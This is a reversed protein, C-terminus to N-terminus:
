FPHYKRQRFRSYNGIFNFMPKLIQAFFILVLIKIKDNSNIEVDIGGYKLKQLNTQMISHMLKKQFETAQDEWKGTIKRDFPKMVNEKWKMEWLPILNPKEEPIALMNPEFDIQLFHCVSKLSQGPNQVLTEFKIDFFNEKSFMSKAKLYLDVYENWEMSSIALNRERWPARSLSLAVDRGDRLICIVKAHPYYHYIYKLYKLHQPSKECWYKKQANQRYLTMCIDFINIYDQATHIFLKMFVDIDIQLDKMRSKLLFDGIGRKTLPYKAKILWYNSLIEFFHSEPTVAIQSHQDLRSALLTTGSRPCGVIFIPKASTLAVDQHKNIPRKSINM